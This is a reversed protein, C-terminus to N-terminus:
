GLLRGIYPEERRFIPLAIAFLIAAAALPVLLQWAAPSQGYLFIDRFSEFLGTLPNLPLLDRSQGSVQDLAILGPAVFFLARVLSVAFSSLDQYWIGLLAAPYALSLAFVITVALVVPLWVLAVTLDVGYAIMRLPFITLSGSVAVTESVTSSAPVLTKPFDMNLIISGRIEFARLSNAVTAIVIQFPVIACAISLGPAEGPEDLVFAILVLYIGLAAFPDALIKLWRLHGRGYRMRIDAQALATIVDVIRRVRAGISGKTATV